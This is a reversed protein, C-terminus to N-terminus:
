DRISGIIRLFENAHLSAGGILWGEMKGEDIYSRAIKSTVSGGYIIRIKAAHQKGFLDTLIREIYIRAERADKPRCPDGTGIAWVPEYAITFRALVSTKIGKLNKQLQIKLIRAVEDREGEKEGICLITKLGADLAAITKANIMEDTENLRKRRESHGVIVYECGLNKLMQPSIEGTYAGSQDWFCDQAGLQLIKSDRLSLASLYVFPPCVVVETNKPKMKKVGGAVIEFLSNAKKPTQPNMKWNGVALLKKM